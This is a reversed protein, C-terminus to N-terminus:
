TEFIPRTTVLNIADFWFAIATTPQSNELTEQNCLCKKLMEM